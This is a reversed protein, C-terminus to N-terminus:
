LKKSEPVGLLDIQSRSFFLSMKTFILFQFGGNSFLKTFAAVVHLLHFVVALSLFCNFILYEPYSRTVQPSRKHSQM